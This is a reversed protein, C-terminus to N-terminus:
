FLWCAYAVAGIAVLAASGATSLALGRATPSKRPFLLGACVLAVIVAIGTALLVLTRQSAFTNNPLGTKGLLWMAVLVVGLLPQVVFPLTWTAVSWSAKGSLPLPGRM